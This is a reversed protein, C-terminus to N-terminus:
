DDYADDINGVFQRSGDENLRYVDGDGDYAEICVECVYGGGEMTDGEVEFDAEGTCRPVYDREREDLQSLGREDFFRSECRKEKLLSWAKEFAEM